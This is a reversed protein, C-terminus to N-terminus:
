ANKRELYAYKTNLGVTFNTASNAKTWDPCQRIFM